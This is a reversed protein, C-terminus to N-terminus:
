FVGGSARIELGTVTFTGGPGTEQYKGFDVYFLLEESEEHYIVAGSAGITEGDFATWAVDGWTICTPSVICVDLDRESYGNQWKQEWEDVDDFRTPNFVCNPDAGPYNENMLVICFVDNKFDIDSFKGTYYPKTTIM